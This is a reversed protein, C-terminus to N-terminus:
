NPYFNMSLSFVNEGNEFESGYFRGIELVPWFNKTLKYELGVIHAKRMDGFDQEFLWKPIFNAKEDFFEYRFSYFMNANKTETGILLCLSNVWFEESDDSLNIVNGFGYGITLIPKELINHRNLLQVRSDFWHTDFGEGSEVGESVDITRMYGVDVGKVIGTRGELGILKVADDSDESGSSKIKLYTASGSLKGPEVTRPGRHTTAWCGLLFVSLATLTIVDKIQKTKM